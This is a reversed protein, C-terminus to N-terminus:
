EWVLRHMRGFHWRHVEPATSTTPNAPTATTARASPVIARFRLPPQPPLVAPWDRAEDVLGRMKEFWWHARNARRSQGRLPMMTRNELGLELQRSIM